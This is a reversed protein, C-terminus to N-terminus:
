GVVVCNSKDVRVTVPGQIPDEITLSQEAIRLLVRPHIMRLVRIEKVGMRNVLAYRDEIEKEIEAMRSEMDQVHFMLETVLERQKATLLRMRMAFPKIKARIRESRSSLEDTEAERCSLFKPLTYDEAVKIYTPVGSGSGLEGVVVGGLAVVQGGVIRGEAVDVKGLAHITSQIIENVVSVDGGARVEANTIYNTRVDGDACVKGKGAGAIGRGVIINGGSKVNAAGIVNGVEIGGGVEVVAVENIDKSVVLHGDFKINGTEIGVSGNIDYTEDVCLRNDTLRLLGAKEAIFRAGKEDYKVYRGAQLTVKKVDPSPCEAGFVDVGSEGRQGPIIRAVVEDAPVSRNGSRERYNARGTTEDVKFETSFFDRSWETREDTTEKAPIGVTVVVQWSDGKSDLALQVRARLEVLDDPLKVGIESAKACIGEMVADLSFESSDSRARVSM